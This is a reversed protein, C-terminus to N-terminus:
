FIELMLERDLIIGYSQVILWHNIEIECFWANTGLFNILFKYINSLEIEKNDRRWIDAFKEDKRKKKIIAYM